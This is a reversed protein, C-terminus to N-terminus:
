FYNRFLTDGKAHGYADLTTDTAEAKDFLLINGGYTVAITKTNGAARYAIIDGTGGIDIWSSVAEAFLILRTPDNIVGNRLARKTALWGPKTNPSYIDTHNYGITIAGPHSLDPAAPFGSRIVSNKDPTNTPRPLGLYVTFDSNLRWPSNMNATGDANLATDPPYYGDHDNAYATAGASLQRLNGISKAQCAASRVRSTVPLAVAALIAVIAVVVLLELLTFGYPRVFRQRPSCSPPMVPFFNGGRGLLM